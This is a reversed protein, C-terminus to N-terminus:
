LKNYFILILSCVQPTATRRRAKMEKSLPKLKSSNDVPPDLPAVPFVNKSDQFFEDEIRDPSSERSSASDSIAGLLVYM